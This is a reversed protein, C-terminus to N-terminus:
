LFSIKTFFKEGEGRRQIYHPISTPSAGSAAREALKAESGPPGGHGFFSHPEDNDKGQQKNKPDVGPFQIKEHVQTVGDAQRADPYASHDSEAPQDLGKDGQAGVGIEEKGKARNDILSGQFGDAM